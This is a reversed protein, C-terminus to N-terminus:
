AAAGQLRRIVDFAVALAPNRDTAVYGGPLIRRQGRGGNKM